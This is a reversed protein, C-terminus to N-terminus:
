LAVALLQKSIASQKGRQLGPGNADAEIKRQQTAPAFDLSIDASRPWQRNVLAGLRRDFGAVWTWSSQPGVCQGDNGVALDHAQCRPRVKAEHTVQDEM